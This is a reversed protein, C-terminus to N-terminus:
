HTEENIQESLCRMKEVKDLLNNRKKKKEKQRRSLREKEKGTYDSEIKAQM